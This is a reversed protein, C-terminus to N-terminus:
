HLCGNAEYVSIAAEVQTLKQRFHAQLHEFEDDFMACLMKLRRREEKLLAPVKAAKHVPILGPTVHAEKALDLCQKIMM